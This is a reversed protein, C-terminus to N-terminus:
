KSIEFKFFELTENDPVSALHGGKIQCEREAEWFSVSVNSRWFYRGDFAFMISDPCQEEITGNSEAFFPMYLHKKVNTKHYDVLLPCKM